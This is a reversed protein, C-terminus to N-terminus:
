LGLGRPWAVPLNGDGSIKRPRQMPAARIGAIVYVHWHTWPDPALGDDVVFPTLLGSVVPGTLAEQAYRRNKTALLTGSQVLLERM